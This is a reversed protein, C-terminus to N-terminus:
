GRTPETTTTVVAETVPEGALDEDENFHTSVAIPRASRLVPMGDTDSSGATVPADAIGAGVAVGSVALTDETLVSGTISPPVINRAERDEDHRLPPPPRRVPEDDDLDISKRLDDSAKRVERVGRAIKKAIQPLENPGFVLLAVACIILMESMGIGFM